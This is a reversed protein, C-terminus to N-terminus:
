VLIYGGVLKNELTVFSGPWKINVDGSVSYMISYIVLCTIPMWKACVKLVNKMKLTKKSRQDMPKIFQKDPRHYCGRYCSMKQLQIVYKNMPDFAHLIM